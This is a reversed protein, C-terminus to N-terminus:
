RLRKMIQKMKELGAKGEFAYSCSSKSCYGYTQYLQDLKEPLTIGQYKYYASMECILLAANVGDKDRVYSGSLYGSSEEFGFIFDGERKWVDM